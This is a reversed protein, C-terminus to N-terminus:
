KREVRRLAVLEAHVAAALDRGSVVRAGRLARTDIPRPARAKARERVLEILDARVYVWRRGFKAGPVKGSATMKRLHSESTQLLQAAERLGVTDPVMPPTNAASV